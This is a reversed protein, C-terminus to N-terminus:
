TTVAHGRFVKPRPSRACSPELTPSSGMDENRMAAGSDRPTARPKQFVARFRWLQIILEANTLPPLDEFPRLTHANKQELRLTEIINTPFSQKVVSKMGDEHYGQLRKCDMACPGDPGMNQSFQNDWNFRHTMYCALVKEGQRGSHQGETCPGRMARPLCMTRPPRVRNQRRSPPHRSIARIGRHQLFFTTGVLTVALQNIGQGFAFFLDEHLVSPFPQVGQLLVVICNPRPSLSGAFIFLLLFLPFTCPKIISRLHAHSESLWLFWCPLNRGLFLLSWKCSKCANNVAEARAPRPPMNHHPQFAECQPSFLFFIRLVCGRAPACKIMIVVFHALSRRGRQCPRFSICMPWKQVPIQLGPLFLQAYRIHIRRHTAIECVHGRCAAVSVFDSDQVVM